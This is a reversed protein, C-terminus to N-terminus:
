AAVGMSGEREKIARDLKKLAEEAREATLKNINLLMKTKEQRTVLPHNLLDIIEQKQAAKAYQIPHGAEDHTPKAPTIVSAKKAQATGDVRPPQASLNALTKDVITSAQAFTLAPEALLHLAELRYGDNKHSALAKHAQDRQGRTAFGTQQQEDTGNVPAPWRLKTASCALEFIPEGRHAELHPWLAQLDERSAATLVQKIADDLSYSVIPAAAPAAAPAEVVLQAGTGADQEAPAPVMDLGLEEQTVLGSISFARKLAMAEAVKIIMASPYKKWTPNQGAGYEAFSAYFYAPYARDKRHVLAWAGVVAGREPLGYLHEVSGDVLKRFTDNACVADSQIGNMQKDRSAIKLYGDRSSFITAVVEEPRQGPRLYKICWIEKAFPDLGYTKALHLLLLFEDHTANKAVTNKMLALQEDSFTIQEALASKTKGTTTLSASM